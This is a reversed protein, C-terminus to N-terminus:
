TDISETFTEGMCDHVAGTFDRGLDGPGDGGVCPPLVHAGPVMTESGIIADYCHSAKVYEGIKIFTSQKRFLRYPSV